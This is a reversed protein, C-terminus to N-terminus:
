GPPRPPAPRRLHRVVAVGDPVLDEPAARGHAARVADLDAGHPAHLVVRALVDEVPDHDVGAVPPPEDVRRLHRADRVAGDRQRDVRRRDRRQGFARRQRAGDGWVEPPLVSRHREDIPDCVAQGVLHNGITWCGLGHRELIARRGACYGPDRLAEAVDFHDGWCALELGDFGWGGCKEALTELPLDAWQGTFLTVPRSM